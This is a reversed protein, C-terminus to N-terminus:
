KVAKVIVMSDAWWADKTEKPISLSELSLTLSNFHKLLARQHRRGLSNIETTLYTFVGNERLHSAAVPFFHEAFTISNVVYQIFEEENLPFAHFFIGDFLGLQKEIDEWRGQILNITSELYNEKWPEYFNKVSYENCEIITHSRVGGEQIFTASVGRGFGIELVDGHTESVQRAMSKMIPIQWDELIVQEELESHSVDSIYGRNALDYGPVFRKSVRDLDILDDAVENLLQSILWEKQTKRPPNIFRQNKLRLHIEFDKETKSKTNGGSNETNEEAEGSILDATKQPIEMGAETSLANSVETESLNEIENLRKETINPDILRMMEELDNLDDVRDKNAKKIQHKTDGEDEALVIVQDIGPHAKITNVIEDLEIRYGRIKVQDDNRGLFELNGDPMFRVIDGTKYLRDNHNTTFPNSIFKERTPDPRNLYGKALGKGGIHLEGPVGIPVPNLTPSLVYIKTDPLSKGIPITPNTIHENCAYVTSWVTGETPGYENFLLVNKLLKFHTRVVDVSCVEGAVIVTRLSGLFGSENRILQEYFSPICLMHTIEHQHILRSLYSIDMFKDDEPIYLTGGCGLTWFIGAVSSDFAYTSFLLFGKPPHKYYNKRANTSHQLNEHTIMVGKPEGSSGSTYIVYALHSPKVDRNLNKDPCGHIVESSTDLSIIQCNNKPLDQVFAQNTLLVSVNADEVMFKLREKPYTPDLPLYAGGAKLIAVLGVIMDISRGLYIGVLTEPKVGLEVLHHAIQNARRNLEGYNLRQDKYVLATNQAQETVKSEFGRHWCQDILQNTEVGNWDRLIQHHEQEPLIEIESLQQNPNSVIRGLVTKLHELIRSIVSKNFQASDYVLTVELKVGPVVLLALPYNSREFYQVDSLEPGRGEEDRSEDAPHNEFVLISEFLLQGRPVSSWGQVDVLPSYEYESIEMQRNQIQKLWTPLALGLDLKIRAPLTNIFLGVMNEIGDISAPRGSITTGFVIDSDGSYHHLLIAWAGQLITNITVRNQRAISRLDTTLSESLEMHKQRHLPDEDRSASASGRLQIQTPRSFDKLFQRWFVEAKGRDQKQLWNIYVQYPRPAELKLEKNGLLANYISLVERLVLRMSWGDLILHHFSWLFNFSTPSLQFLILRILPAKSLDFGRKRDAELYTELKERQETLSYEQWDQYEWPVNVRLRVIQLPKNRREWTFLTRLVQHREVVKEWAKQFEEPILNSDHLICCFQNFYMTSKPSYLTHFLMGEQTPSLRYIAEINEKNAPANM